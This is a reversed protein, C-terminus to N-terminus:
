FYKQLADHSLNELSESVVNVCQDKVIWLVDCAKIVSLRHTIVLLIANPFLQKLLVLPSEEEEEEEEFLPCTPQNKTLVFDDMVILAYSIRTTLLRAIMLKFIQLTSFPVFSEFSTEFNGHKQGAITCLSDNSSIHLLFYLPTQLQLPLTKVLNCLQVRNLCDYLFADSHNEFPDLIQRLSLTHMITSTTTLYAINQHIVDHLSTNLNRTNLFLKGRSIPLLNFLSLLLTTKGAGTKGIIAITQSAKAFITVNKLTPSFLDLLVNKCGTSHSLVPRVYHITVNNLTLQNELNKCPILSQCSSVNPPKEYQCSLIRSCDLLRQLSSFFAQSQAFQSLTFGLLFPFTFAQMAIFSFLEILPTQSSQFVFQDVWTFSGYLTISHMKKIYCILSITVIIPLSVLRERVYLWTSIGNISYEARTTQIVSTYYMQLFRYSQHFARLTIVSTQADHLLCSSPTISALKVRQLYKNAPLYFNYMWKFVISIILITIFCLIPAFILLFLIILLIQLTLSIGLFVTSMLRLDIVSMDLTFRNLISGFSFFSFCWYESHLFKQLLFNHISHATKLVGSIQITIIIISMMVAACSLLIYFIANQNSPYSIPLSLTTPTSTSTNFVQEKLSYPKTQISNPSATLSLKSLYFTNCFLLLFLCFKLLFLLMLTFIFRKTGFSQIYYFFAKFFPTEPAENEDYTFGHNKKTEETFTYLKKLYIEKLKTNKSDHMAVSENPVRCHTVGRLSKLSIPKLVGKKLHHMEFTVCPKEVKEIMYVALDYPLTIVTSKKHLFGGFDFLNKFIQLSTVVDLSDFLGDIFCFDTAEIHYLCRALAIRARQGQSITNGRDTIIHADGTEWLAFDHHLECIKIITDYFTKNYPRGFLIVERVTGLPLWCMQGAYAVPYTPGLKVTAYRMKQLDLPYWQMQGQIRTRENLLCMILDTKGSGVPGVICTCCDRKLCLEKITIHRTAISEKVNQIFSCSKRDIKDGDHLHSVFIGDFIKLLCEHGHIKDLPDNQRQINELTQSKMVQCDTKEVVSSYFLDFHECSLLGYLIGHLHSGLKSLPRILEKLAIQGALVLPISLKKKLTKDTFYVGLFTLCTFTALNQNILTSISFAITYLKLTSMETNRLDTIHKDVQSETNQLKMNKLDGSIIQLFNIRRDRLCLLKKKYYVSLCECLFSVMLLSVLLTFAISAAFDHLIRAGIFILLLSLISTSLHVMHTMFDAIYQCDESLVNIVNVKNSNTSSKKTLEILTPIPCSLFRKYLSM